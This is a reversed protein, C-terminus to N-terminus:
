SVHWIFAADEPLLWPFSKPSIFPPVDHLCTGMNKAVPDSIGVRSGGDTVNSASQVHELWLQSQLETIKVSYVHM